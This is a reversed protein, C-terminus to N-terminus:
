EDRRALEREKTRRQTAAPRLDEGLVDLDGLPHELPDARFSRQRREVELALAPRRGVPEPRRRVGDAGHELRVGDGTHEAERSTVAVAAVVVEDFPQERAGQEFVIQRQRILEPVPHQRSVARM